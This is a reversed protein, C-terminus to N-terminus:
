NKIYFDRSLPTFEHKLLFAVIQAELHMKSKQEEPISQIHKDLESKWHQPDGTFTISIQWQQDPMPRKDIMAAIPTKPTM